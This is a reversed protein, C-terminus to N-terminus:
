GGGRFIVFQTFYLILLRDFSTTIVSFGGDLLLTLSDVTCFFRGSKGSSSELTMLVENSRLFVLRDLDNAPVM